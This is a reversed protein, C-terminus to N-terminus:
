SQWVLNGDRFIVADHDPSENLKWWDLASTLSDRADVGRFEHTSKSLTSRNTVILVYTKM